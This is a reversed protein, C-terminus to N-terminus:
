VKNRRSVAGAGLLALALLALSGPEPIATGKIQAESTVSWGNLTDADSAADFITSLFLDHPNGNLDFQGNTDFNALASGGTLDIYGQGSGALSVNDYVSKYTTTTDGFIAGPSFVGSLYLSGGTIGTYLGLGVPVTIKNMDVGASVAAGITPNYDVANQYVAFNGGVSKATTTVGPAGPTNVVEHDVLNGFVGTLYVGGGGYAYWVTNDSIRTIKNVTFIGMTDASLNDSGLSGVAKTLGLVTDCTGTTTCVPGLTSGYGVTGSDYNSLSIKFDGAVVTPGANASGAAGLSLLIAAIAANVKSKIM